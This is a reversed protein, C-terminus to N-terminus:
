FQNWGWIDLTDVTVQLLVPLHSRESGWIVGTAMDLSDVNYAGIARQSNFAERILSSPNVISM